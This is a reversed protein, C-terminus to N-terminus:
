KLNLVWCRRDDLEDECPIYQIIQERLRMHLSSPQYLQWRNRGPGYYNYCHTRELCGLLLRTTEVPFKTKKVRLCQHKFSARYLNPIKRLCFKSTAYGLKKSSRHYAINCFPIISLAMEKSVAYQSYM